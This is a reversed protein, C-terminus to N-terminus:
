TADHGLADRGDRPARPDDTVTAATADRPAGPTVGEPASTTAAADAARQQKATLARSGDLNVGFIVLLVFIV